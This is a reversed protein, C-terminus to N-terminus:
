EDRTKSTLRGRSQADPHPRGVVKADEESPSVKRMHGCSPALHGCLQQRSHGHKKGCECRESAWEVGSPTIILMKHARPRKHLTIYSIIDLFSTTFKLQPAATQCFKVLQIM